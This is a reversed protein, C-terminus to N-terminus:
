FKFILMCNRNILFCSKIKINTDEKKSFLCKLRDLLSLLLDRIIIDLDWVPETLSVISLCKFSASIIIAPPAPLSKKLFFFNFIFM